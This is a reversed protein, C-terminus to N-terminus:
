NDVTLLEDLELLDRVLLWVEEDPAEIERGGVETEEAEDVEVEDDVGEAACVVDIGLPPPGPGVWGESM